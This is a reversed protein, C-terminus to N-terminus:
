PSPTERQVTLVGGRDLSAVDVETVQPTDTGPWLVAVKAMTSTGLGFHTEAPRHSEYSGGTRVWQTIAPRGAPTVVVRAGVGFRNGPVSEDVLRIMLSHNVAGAAESRSDNRYLRPRDNSSAILVDLDGDRDADFPVLAHGVSTDTLGVVPAADAFRPAGDAETGPMPVWFRMPDDDFHEFFVASSERAQGAPTATVNSFGNTQIIELRGDNGFDEIAAGWGWWGFRVGADDTIDAFTGDGLNRYLRNGSCGTIGGAVPCSGDETPYGISTVLWDPLGDGDIDRVVSGMGNEDTAVGSGDTVDVFRQGNINRYLRSTCADGVLLLDDWGDDDVDAYSATFSLSHEFNVGLTATADTFVGNGDNRFIRGRNPGAGRRRPFGLQRLDNSNRCTVSEGPGAPREPPASQVEADWHTLTLDLDGDQDFDEASIGHGHGDRDSVNLPPLRVGREAARDTFHETGDNVFYQVAARGSGTVIIDMDADADFDAITAAAHGERSEAGGLGAAIARDTFRGNGDNVYLANPFGVRPLFVDLDGDGDIDEVAAGSTMGDEATVEDADHQATLGAADGVEVFHLGSVALNSNPLSEDPLASTPTAPQTPGPAAGDPGVAKTATSMPEGSTETPPSSVSTSSSTATPVPSTSSRGGSSTEACGAALLLVTTCLVLGATCRRFALSREIIPVTAIVGRTASRGRM